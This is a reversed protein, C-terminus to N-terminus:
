QDKSRQKMKEDMRGKTEHYKAKASDSMDETKDKTEEWMHDAKDKMDDMAKM